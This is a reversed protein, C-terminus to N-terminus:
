APRGTKSYNEVTEIYIDELTRTKVQLNTLNVSQQKALTTLQYLDTAADTSEMTSFGDLGLTLSFKLDTQLMENFQPTANFSIRSRQSKSQLDQKSGILAIEGSVMIGISSALFEAEEMYHTTLMVTCGLTTLNHIMEWSARRAQPDFGTTPEDLFLIDPQGILAIGVDLRRKQGGSIRKVVAASQDQLGVLELVENTSRSDRYYSGFLDLTERVTLYTNAGTQQLVIGVRERFEPMRNTPNFGLVSVEGSTAQRYGELIEITTTKGAGNPGLLAFVEGPMVDFSIDHVAAVDGYSKKLGRVSIAPESIIGM